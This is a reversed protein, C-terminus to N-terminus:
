MKGAYAPNDYKAKAGKYIPNQEKNWNSKMREKQFKSYEYNDYASIIIKWALLAVIAALLLGGIIGFVIAWLNPKSEIIKPCTRKPSAWVTFNGLANEGAYFTVYCGDFDRVECKRAEATSNTLVINLSCNKCTEPDGRKFVQCLVCDRNDTCQSPCSACVECHAGKYGVDCTCKGCDCKGNGSCVTGDRICNKQVLTCNKQGCNSGTWIGKCQCKNCECVGREPGGCMKQEHIDCGFNRCECLTGSIKEEPNQRTFCECTGCICVGANNCVPSDKAGTASCSSDNLKSIDNCQCDSGYRGSDCVCVGCTYNGASNCKTSNSEVFSSQECDCSCIVDTNVQVVGFGAINIDFSKLQKLKETCRQATVSVEFTVEEEIGVSNCENDATSQRCKVAKYEVKIDEVKTEVLRVTSSVKEYSDKILKVVNDSNTSLEGVTTGLDKWEDALNKYIRFKSKTVALIPVIRNEKLKTRLQGVSPYDLTRSRTYVGNSDLHCLGDNPEVVGGLKGDGASHFAEDTVFVIIRRSTGKPKWKIKNKCVAVQMMGDFGGEPDDLNGSIRQARVGQAFKNADKTFDLNHHFGFPPVDAYPEKKLQLKIYPSLTKDVFSGFALSYNKTITGIANAIGAGLNKLNQLDDKMSYSLDMLYYLDVPYDKAPKVKIEFKAPQGKRLKLSVAQPTLQVSPGLPKNGSLIARSSPSTKNMCSSAMKSSSDCRRRNKDKKVFNEDSCWVCDSGGSICDACSTDYFRCSSTSGQSAAFIALSCLVVVTSLV